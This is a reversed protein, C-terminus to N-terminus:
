QIPYSFLVVLGSIFVVFSLALMMADVMRSQFKGSIGGFFLVSAFIVTLLVYRDSIQNANDALATKDAAEQEAQHALGTEPLVYESMVFPSAPAAPNELPKTAIWADSATKLEPPFRQYIFDALRMNDESYAVIWQTFLNAQISLRQTAQNTFTAAKLNAAGAEARYQTEDGGWLTSQYGSWATAVTALALVVASLFEVWRDFRSVQLEEQSLARQFQHAVNRDTPEEPEISAPPENM